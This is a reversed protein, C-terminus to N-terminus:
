KKNSFLSVISYSSLPQPSQRKFLKLKSFYDTINKIIDYFTKRFECSMTCYLIFNISSNFLVIADMLDGLPMYVLEYLNQEHFIMSVFLLISQPLEAILFLICIITLMLTTRLHERSTKSLVLRPMHTKKNEVILITENINTTSNETLYTEKNTAIKIEILKQQAAESNRREKIEKVHRMLMSCKEKFKRKNKHITVLSDILLISFTVLIVCPLLKAFAAQSYFTFKFLSGTKTENTVKNFRTEKLLYVFGSYDTINMEYSAVNVKEAYYLFYAPSCFLLCFIGIIIVMKFCTSYSTLYKFIKKLNSNKIKTSKQIIIYRFVALFVTLWVSFSHATVSLNVHVAKYITWFQTDRKIIYSIETNCGGITPFIINFWITYLLNSCMTLLDCIALATLILNTPRIILNSRTLVVINLVNLTIGVTCVMLSVYGHIPRYADAFKFLSSCEIAVPFVEKTTNLFYEKLIM